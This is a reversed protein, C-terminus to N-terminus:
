ICCRFGMHGTSSAASNFSRASLRYRSCYSAHCLYSGGRIVKMDGMGPASPPGQPNVRTEPTAVAHWDPSWWDATWEWVNGVVNYLGLSNPPFSRAAATGLHGDEGTNDRPFTGQWINCQHVGGPVLEDGWPYLAQAQGGRAAAEWEAETPLRKGAWHAFALADTWAVHVVPHDAKEMADSGPGDPHRWCAGDVALWWPALAVADCHRVAHVAGPHVAAYFVFSWGAREAETQHGTADVFAAFQANTVATTDIRCGSLQIRRRPGEGDGPITDVGESGIWYDGPALTAM